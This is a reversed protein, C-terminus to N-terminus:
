IIEFVDTINKSLFEDLSKESLTHNKVKEMVIKRWPKPYSDPVKVFTM